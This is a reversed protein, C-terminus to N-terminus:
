GKSHPSLRHQRRGPSRRSRAPDRVPQPVPDFGSAAPGACRLHAALDEYAVGCRVALKTVEPIRISELLWGIAGCTDCDPDPPRRFAALVDHGDLEGPRGACHKRAIVAAINVANPGPERRGYRATYRRFAAAPELVPAVHDPHRHFWHPSM